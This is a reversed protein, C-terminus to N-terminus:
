PRSHERLTRVVTEEINRQLSVALGSDSVSVPVNITLGAGGATGSAGVLGGEAYRSAKTYDYLSRVGRQNFTELFSLAGPQEVVAARVVYERNSLWAPISDSTGTGPGRVIGGTAMGGGGDAAGTPLSFGMGKFLAKIAAFALMQAIMDLMAAVFNKAMNRIAEGLNKAGQIGQSLFNGLGNVLSDFATKKLAALRRGTEDVHVGIQRVDASTQKAEGIKESDGTKVAAQQYREAIEQLVPLREREIGLIRDEGEAETVVGRAILEQIKQREMELNFLAQQIELRVRNFEIEAERATAYEGIKTEREEAPMGAARLQQDLQSKEIELAKAQAEIKKGTTELIRQDLSLREVGLTIIAKREDETLALGKEQLELEKQRIRLDIAALDQKEKWAIKEQEAQIVGADKGKQGGALKREGVAAEVIQDREKRLGEIEKEAESTLIKRRREFYARLSTLGNDFAVQNEKEELRNRAQLLRIENEVQARLFAEKARAAAQQATILKNTGEKDERDPPGEERGIKVPKKPPKLFLDSYVKEVDKKFEENIGRIRDTGDKYAGEAGKWFGAIAGKVGGTEWGESAGAVAGKAMDILTFLRVEWIAITAGVAKGVTVVLAIIAKLVWAAAEGLTKFGNVGKGSVAENMADIAQTIGPVFGAVFQTAAGRAQGELKKMGQAAAEAAEAFDKTMLLGMEELRRRTEEVGDKALRNFVPILEAGGRGFIQQAIATKQYSDGLKGIRDVLRLVMEDDGLNLAEKRSIGLRRFAEEMDKNGGVLEDRAKAFKILGKELREPDVDVKKATSSLVSLTEVALGTKQSLKEMADASRFANKALTALGLVAGTIGLLPFLGKLLVNMELLAKNALGVGAATGKGTKDAETQVKRLAAVVEAVGEASLRIRIDPNAM